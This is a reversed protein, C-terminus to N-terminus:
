NFHKGYVIRVAEAPSEAKLDDHVIEEGFENLVLVTYGHKVTQTKLNGLNMSM